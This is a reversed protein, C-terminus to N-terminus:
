CCCVIIVSVSENTDYFTDELHDRGKLQGVLVKDLNKEVGSTDCVEDVM